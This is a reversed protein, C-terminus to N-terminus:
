CIPDMANTLMQTPVRCVRQKAICRRRVEHRVRCPSASEHRQAPAIQDAFDLYEGRLKGFECRERSRKWVNLEHQRHQAPREIQSAFALRRPSTSHRQDARTGIHSDFNKPQFADEANMPRDSLNARPYQLGDLNKPGFAAHKRTMHRDAFQSATEFLKIARVELHNCLETSRLLSPQEM